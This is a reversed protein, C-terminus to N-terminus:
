IRSLFKEKMQELHELNENKKDLEEDSYRPAGAVWSEYNIHRLRGEDRRPSFLSEYKAEIESIRDCYDDWKEYLGVEVNQDIDYKLDRFDVFREGAISLVGGVEDGIWDAESYPLEHKQCFLTVYTNCLLDFKEKLDKIEM